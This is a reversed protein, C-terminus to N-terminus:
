KKKKREMLLYVGKYDYSCSIVVVVIEMRYKVYMYKVMHTVSQLKYCLCQRDSYRYCILIIFLFLCVMM